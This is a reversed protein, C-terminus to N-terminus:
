KVPSDGSLRLKCTIRFSVINHVENRELSSLSIDSYLGSSALSSIFGTVLSENRAWGSFAAGVKGSAASGDTGIMDLYLGDPRLTGLTSLMKTWRTSAAAVDHALLIARALSDNSATLVKIEPTKALIVRYQEVYSALRKGAVWAAAPLAAALLLGCVAVAASFAYVGTRVRRLGAGPAAGALRPVNGCSGALAAGAAQLSEVDSADIGAKSLSPRHVTYGSDQPLDTAADFAYLHSPWPISRQSISWFRSLRGLHSELAHPSSPAMSFVALLSGDAVIGIKYFPGANHVSVFSRATPDLALPLTCLFADDPVVGVLNGFLRDSFAALATDSTRPTWGAPAQQPSAGAAQSSSPSRHTKWRSPAAAVVGRHLLLLNGAVSDANWRDTRKIRWGQASKELSALFFTGDGSSLIGHVQQSM